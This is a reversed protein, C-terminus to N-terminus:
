FKWNRLTLTYHPRLAEVDLIEFGEKEMAASVDSVQALEGDPFIYTNIFQTVPTHLWGTDNTIGHNLFLGGPALLRKVSQFYVPFNETGIHEFMGVSVIRDYHIDDPLNRYDRLEFSVSAELGLEKRRSIAYDFQNRSLTIGHVKIGYHRAAWFALGGWGCGIDLLRQGPVLRLKRCIYDLKDRQAEALSQDPSSFYACSYIMEPDLFLRYFDNSIDYHHSISERSNDNRVSGVTKVGSIRGYAILRAALLFMAIREGLTFVRNQLYDILGFVMELDGEADVDGDLHAEALSNLNRTLLLDSLPYPKRFVLSCSAYKKGTVTENNWLRVAVPGTYDKLIIHLLDRSAKLITGDPRTGTGQYGPELDAVQRENETTRYM